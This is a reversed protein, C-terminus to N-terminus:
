ETPVTEAAAADQAAQEAAADRDAGAQEAAHDQAGQQMGTAHEQDATQAAAAHAHDAAQARADSELGAQHKLAEIEAELRAIDSTIGLKALEVRSKEALEERKFALEDAHMKLKLDLEPQKTAIEEHLKQAFAETQQLKTQMAQMQQQVAPPIAQPENTEEILGPTKMNIARKMRAARADAGPYDDTAFMEDGIVWMLEPDAAILAVDKEHMEERAAGYSLESSVTVGYEADGLVHTIMRGSKHQYPTGIPVQDTTKGDEHRVTMSTAGKDVIAIRKLLIRGVAKRTREENDAFHFNTIDGEKKRERQAIGSTENSRQGISADFIGMSAKIGEVCQQYGLSLAQIAPEVVNRKPPNLEKGNADWQNYLLVGKPIIGADAWDKLLQEPISGIPAEYPTKPDMALKEAINSLYLNALRSLHISNCTLAYRRQVGDVFDERGWLPVIDIDDSIAQTEKLIQAGDIVYRWVEGDEYKVFKEVIRVMDGSDGQGVWESLDAGEGAFDTRNLLSDEGYDQKHQPKTILSEVWCRKADSRDYKRGPGWTVSFQDEIREVIQRQKPKGTAEDLTGPIYETTVRIAARGSSVQQDRATDYAIDADCAYEIERIRSQLMEATEQQGKDGKSIKIAPKNQRGANVVHAVYVPLKNAQVIPRKEARRGALTEEDWQGLSKDTSNTFAHIFQAEERDTADRARDDSYEQRSDSLFKDVDTIRSKREAM